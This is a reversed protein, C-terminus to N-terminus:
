LNKIESNCPIPIEQGLNKKLRNILRGFYFCYFRTLVNNINVLDSLVLYFKINM